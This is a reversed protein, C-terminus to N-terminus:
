RKLKPLVKKSMLEYSKELEEDGNSLPMALTLRHLGLTNLEQLREICVTAPGVIAFQDVFEADLVSVQAGGRGHTSMDYVQSLREFTERQHANAPGVVKKNMISFRAQTAVTPKALERAKEIDEHPVISVSAGVKLQDPDRGAARAANKACEIGWRIREPDAGVALIVTEATRAGIEIAKPGTAMVEVPVKPLDYGALWKLRSGEPQAGLALKDFNKVAGAVASGADELRVSEGRLYTQLMELYPEFLGLEMPAAGVYALASDGRGIGLVARGGSLLQLTAAACATVSPHRTIPNTVGTALRLSKTASACLNLFAWVEPFMCQSDFCVAGDWGDDEFRAAQAAGRRPDKETINSWFEM